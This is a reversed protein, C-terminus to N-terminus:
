LILTSDINTFVREKMEAADMATVVTGQPVDVIFGLDRLLFLAERSGKARARALGTDLSQLDQGSLAIGRQRLREQAHASFRLGAAAQLKERLLQSFGAGQLSGAAAASRPVTPGLGGVERIADTV